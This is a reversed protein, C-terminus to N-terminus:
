EASESNQNLYKQLVDMPYKTYSLKFHGEPKGEVPIPADFLQYSNAPNFKDSDVSEILRSLMPQIKKERSLAYKEHVRALAEVSKNLHEILEITEDCSAIEKRVKANLSKDELLKDRDIAVLIAVYSDGKKHCGISCLGDDKELSSRVQVILSPFGLHSAHNRLQYSLRYSFNADYETSLAKSLKKAENAGLNRKAERDLHDAFMRFSSATNVVARFIPRKAAENPIAPRLKSMNKLLTRLDECNDVVVRFVDSTALLYDVALCIERLEEYEEFELRKLLSIHPGSKAPSVKVLACPPEGPKPPTLIM